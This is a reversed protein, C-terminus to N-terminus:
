IHISSVPSRTLMLRVVSATSVPALVMAVAQGKQLIMIPSPRLANFLSSSTLTSSMACTMWTSPDFPFFSASQNLFIGGRLLEDKVKRLVVKM